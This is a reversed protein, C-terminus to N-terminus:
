MIRMVHNLGNKYNDASFKKDLRPKTNPEELAFKDIFDLEKLEPLVFQAAFVNSLLEQIPSKLAAASKSDRSSIWHQLNSLFPISAAM